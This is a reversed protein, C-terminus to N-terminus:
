LLKALSFNLNNELLKGIRKKISNQLLFILTKPSLLILTDSILNPNYIYIYILQSQFCIKWQTVKINIEKKQM